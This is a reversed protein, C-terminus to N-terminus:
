AGCSWEGQQRAIERGQRSLIIEAPWGMAEMGVQRGASRTRVVRLELGGGRLLPGGEIYDHGPRAADLRLVAGNVRIVAAPTGAAAVLLLGNGGGASFSCGLGPQIATAFDPSSLPQLVASRRASSAGPQATAAAAEGGAASDGAAGGGTAAGEASTDAAPSAANGAAADADLPPLPVQAMGADDSRGREPSQRDCGAILLLAAPLILRAASAM